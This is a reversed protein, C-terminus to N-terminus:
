GSDAADSRWAAHVRAVEKSFFELADLESQGSYLGLGQALKFFSQAPRGEQSLVVVVPLLPRGQQHEYIAIDRLIENLRNRHARLGVNLGVLPAIAGYTTLSQERAVRKLEEYIVRHM